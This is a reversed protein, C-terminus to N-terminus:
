NIHTEEVLTKLKTILNHQMTKINILLYEWQVNEGDFPQFYYFELRLQNFLPRMCQLTIVGGVLHLASLLLNICYKSFGIQLDFQFSGNCKDNMGFCSM